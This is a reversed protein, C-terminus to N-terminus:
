KAPLRVFLDYDDGEDRSDRPHRSSFAIVAGIGDLAPGISPEIWSRRGTSIRRLVRTRRDFAFIDAVLNIDRVAPPCRRGCTLDSADSQFVVVMGSVSIAPHSSAGNASGGGERSSVLETTRTKSDFLFVDTARNLDGRVLDSAESVFAIHRGDGSISPAYSSGNPLSGDARVSVRTTASLALDRVYVNVIPRPGRPAAAAGDLSATSSFAVYRGDASVSPAFSAGMAPQRGSVDLSVLTIAGSAVDFRYVDDAAGNADSGGALNTAASAFVVTRGDASITADRSDGNPADDPPEIARSTGTKRDKIIVARLAARDRGLTEYVLLRGDGSLSPSGPGGDPLRGESRTTELTIAGTTRDLVYIDADDDTDAPALRAYSTFAVYRGDNANVAVTPPDAPSVRVDAQPATLFATSEDDTARSSVILIALGITARARM